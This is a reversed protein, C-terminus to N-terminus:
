HSRAFSILTTFLLCHYFILEHKISIWTSTSMKTKMTGVLSCSGETNSTDPSYWLARVKNADGNWLFSEKLCLRHVIWLGTEISGGHAANRARQGCLIKDRCPHLKLLKEFFCIYQFLIQAKLNMNYNSEIFVYGWFM